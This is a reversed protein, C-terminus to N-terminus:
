KDFQGDCLCFQGIPLMIVFRDSLGSWIAKIARPSETPSDIAAYQNLFNMLKSAHRPSFECGHLLCALCLGRGESGIRSAQGGGDPQLRDVRGAVDRAVIVDIGARIQKAMPNDREMPSPNAGLTLRTDAAKRFLM